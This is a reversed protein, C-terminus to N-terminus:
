ATEVLSEIVGTQTRKLHQSLLPGAPQGLGSQGGDALPPEPRPLEGGSELDDGHVRGISLVSVPVGNDVVCVDM